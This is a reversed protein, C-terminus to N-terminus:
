ARANGRDSIKGSASTRQILWAGILLILPMAPNKFRADATSIASTFIVFVIIALLLFHPWQFHKLRVFAAIGILAILLSFFASLALISYRMVMSGGFHKEIHGRGPAVTIKVAKELQVALWAIPHDLFTRRVDKGITMFYNRMSDRDTWDTSAALQHLEERYHDAQPDAAFQLVDPVHFHAAVVNGSDSIHIRGDISYNRHIWPFILLSVGLVLAVSHVRHQRRLFLIAAAFLALLFGNPRLYASISFLLIVALLDKWNESRLLFYIAALLVFTFLSETLLNGSLIIDIPEIALLILQLLISRDAKMGISIGILYMLPIKLASLLVQVLLVAEISGLLHILAPYGPVRTTEPVDLPYFMSFVGNKLGEALALYLSPDHELQFGQSKHHFFFALRFLLAISFIVWVEIPFLPGKSLRYEMRQAM